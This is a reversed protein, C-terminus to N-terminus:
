GKPNRVVLLVIGGPLSGNTAANLIRINECLLVRKVEAIYENVASLHTYPHAGFAVGTVLAARQTGCLTWKAAPGPHSKIPQRAVRRVVV